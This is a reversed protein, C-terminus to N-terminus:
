ITAHQLPMEGFKYIIKIFDDYNVVDDLSTIFLNMLNVLDAVQIGKVNEYIVNMFDKKKIIGTNNPDHVRFKADLGIKFTNDL